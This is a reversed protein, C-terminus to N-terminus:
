MAIEGRRYIGVTIQHSPIRELGCHWLGNYHDTDGQSQSARTLLTKHSVSSMVQVFMETALGGGRQVSTGSPLYLNVAHSESSCILLGNSVFQGTRMFELQHDSSLSAIETHYILVPNTPDLTAGNWTV